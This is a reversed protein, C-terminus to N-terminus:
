KTLKYAAKNDARTYTDKKGKVFKITTGKSTHIDFGNDNMVVTGDHWVEGTKADKFVYTLDPAFVLVVTPKDVKALTGTMPAYLCETLKKIEADIKKSEEIDGFKMTDKLATKLSSIYKKKARLMASEFSKKASKAKVSRFSDGAFSVSM